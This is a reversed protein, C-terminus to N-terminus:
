EVPTYTPQESSNLSTNETAGGTFPNTPNPPQSSPPPMAFVPMGAGSSQGATPQSTVPASGAPTNLDEFDNGDELRGQMRPRQEPQGDRSANGGDRNLHQYDGTAENAPPKYKGCCFNCCFCCCCCCCCCCGSLIACCIVITKVAPSTVVFYANVNEEGFQEAIYLGLSGYNDYINRKTLDSLISHARNVEKFKDSADVNDPNKDPHYKLALKRYTKKIEDATATKPLGLIEYLSDGSTSLKRKDM